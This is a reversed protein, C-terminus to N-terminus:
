KLKQTDINQNATEEAKRLASNIDAAGKVVNNAATTAEKRAIADYPTLGPVPAPEMKFIAGVNKGKLSKIEEGFSKQYKPDKLSTLRGHKNILTQVEDGTLYDIVAFAQEAHKTSQSLMLLFLSTRFANKPHEKFHPMAALDWNMPKGTTQLEELEGLRAGLGALMALTRDQEFAPIPGKGSNNGPIGKLQQFTALSMKWGDSQLVAKLTKPDVLPANLQEALRQVGGDIDLGAYDVGDAQRTVKRALQIAEDWAMGDKPYAVAFKDFIDKNYYLASFNLSLPLMLLQGSDSYQQIAAMAAPNFKGTDVNFKKVLGNLDQAAQLQNINAAGASGTYLIDPMSGSTVLDEPMNGKAARVLQLTVSPYKKKLPDVMLEQFEEDTLFASYQYLSLTVPKNPDIAPKAASNGANAANNSPSNEQNNPAATQSGSCAALGLTLGAVLAILTFRKKLDVGGLKPTKGTEL